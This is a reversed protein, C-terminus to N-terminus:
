RRFVDAPEIRFVRIIPVASALVAIVTGGLAVRGVSSYEVVMRIGAGALSLASSLALAFAVAAALGLAVSMLAQSLVVGFLRSAPAGLAKLVGYEKLKGLTTTYVTLAVVALGILFGILSMIRLIDTSMDSIVQRENDAFVV